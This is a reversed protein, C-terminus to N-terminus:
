AFCCGWVLVGMFIPLSMHIHTRDRFVNGRRKIILIAGYIATIVFAVATIYLLENYAFTALAALLKVDGAGLVRGAYLIFFATIFIAFWLVSKGAGRLGYAFLSYTIGTLCGLMNLINPIRFTKFDFIVAIGSLLTMFIFRVKIM